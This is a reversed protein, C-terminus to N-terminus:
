CELRRFIFVPVYPLYFFQAFFIDFIQVFLEGIFSGQPLNVKYSCIYQQLVTRLFGGLLVHPRIDLVVYLSTHVHTLTYTGDMLCAEAAYM